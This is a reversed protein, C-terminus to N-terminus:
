RGAVISDLIPAPGTSDRVILYPPFVERRPPGAYDGQIRELLFRAALRGWEPLADAVATIPPAAIRTWWADGMTVLSIDGPIALGLDQCALLAGLALPLNMTVLSTPRPVVQLLERALSYGVEERSVASRGVTSERDLGERGLVDFWGKLFVHGSTELNLGLIGYTRHGREILHQAVLAGADGYDLHLTDSAVTSSIRNLQVIPLGGDGLRHLYDETGGTWSAVILGDVRQEHMTRLSAIERDPDGRTTSVIVSYGAPTLIEDIGDMFSAFGRNHPNTILLGVIQRHRSRLSRAAADAHYGLAEVAAMVKATTDDAVVRTRNLVHSVTTSSVEARRAVDHITPRDSRRSRIVVEGV